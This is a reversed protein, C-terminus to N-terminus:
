LHLMLGLRNFLTVANREIDASMGTDPVPIPSASFGAITAEREGLRAKV